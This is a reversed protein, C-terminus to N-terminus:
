VSRFETKVFPLVKSYRYRNSKICACYYLKQHLALEVRPRMCAVHFATYFPHEQVFTSLIGNGSLACTLEGAPAPELDPVPAVHSAIGNNKM